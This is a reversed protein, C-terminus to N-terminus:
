RPNPSAARADLWAADGRLSAVARGLADASSALQHRCAEASPGLWTSTGALPLVAGFRVQEISTALRRLEIARRQLQLPDDIVGECLVAM